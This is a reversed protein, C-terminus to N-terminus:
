NNRHSDFHITRAFGTSLLAAFIAILFATTYGHTVDFLWGALWPACIGASGWAIFVRGYAQASSEPGFKVLVAVPYIAIIAGYCIGVATLSAIIPSATSSVSLAILAISSLLPLAILLRKIPWRDSVLGALLGGGANGIGIIMVGLIAKQPNTDHAAVIAAAHGIVMLGAAVGFGYSLGLKLLEGAPIKIRADKNTIEANYQAKSLACLTSAIIAVLALVAAMAILAAHYSQTVIIYAMIKAFVSAGVAYAATVTGMAFGRKQPLAHAVLQLVFGYGVGNAAGFLISYGLICTALNSASAATVLGLSAVGCSLVIWKAASLKPYIRYGFLVFVTLTVLALSYILSVQTRSVTLSQELPAILVSFGHISGLVTTVLVGAFLTLYPAVPRASMCHIRALCGGRIDLVIL